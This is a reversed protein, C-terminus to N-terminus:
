KEEGERVIELITWEGNVLRMRAEGPAWDEGFLVKRYDAGGNVTITGDRSPRFDHRWRSIVIDGNRATAGSWEHQAVSSADCIVLRPIAKVNIPPDNELRAFFANARAVQEELCRHIFLGFYEPNLSGEARNPAYFVDVPTESWAGSKGQVAFLGCYRAGPEVTHAFEKLLHVRKNDSDQIGVDIYRRRGDVLKRKGM